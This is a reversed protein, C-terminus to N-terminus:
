IRSIVSLRNLAEELEDPTVQKDPTFIGPRGQLRRLPVGILEPLPARCTILNSVDKAIM